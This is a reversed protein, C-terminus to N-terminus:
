RLGLLPDSISDEGNELHGALRREFLADGDVTITLDYWGGFRELSWAKADLEGPGVVVTTQKATYRNTLTVRATQFARNSLELVIAKRGEDYEAKVDLNARPHGSVGGKFGRYFGNPGHVSVDYDSLGIAAVPWFDMVHKHPEVTYTRPAANSEASRVHFVAAAEGVNRFDIVFADESV